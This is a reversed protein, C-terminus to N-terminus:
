DGLGLRLELKRRETELPDAAHIEIRREPPIQADLWADVAVPDWRNGLGRVPPPFGEEAVLRRWNRYIYGATRDIRDALERVTLLKRETNM